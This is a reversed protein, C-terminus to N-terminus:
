SCIEYLHHIAIAMSIRAIKSLDFEEEWFRSDAHDDEGVCVLRNQGYKICIAMPIANMLVGQKYSPPANALWTEFDDKIAQNLRMFQEISFEM